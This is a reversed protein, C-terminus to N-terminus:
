EYNRVVVALKNQLSIMYDGVRIDSSTAETITDKKADYIMVMDRNNPAYNIIVRRFIGYPFSYEFKGYEDTTVQAINETSALYEDLVNKNTDVTLVEILIEAFANKDATHGTITVYQTDNDCRVSDVILKKRNGDAALANVNIGSFLM